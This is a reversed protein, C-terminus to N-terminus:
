EMPQEAREVALLIAPFLSSSSTTPMTTEIQSIVIHNIEYLYHNINELFEPMHLQYLASSLNGDMELYINYLLAVRRTISAESATLSLLNGLHQNQLYAHYLNWLPFGMDLYHNLPIAMQPDQLLRAM